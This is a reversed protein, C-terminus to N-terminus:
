VLGEKIPKNPIMKEHLLVFKKVLIDGSYIFNKFWINLQSIVKKLWKQIHFLYLLMVHIISKILKIRGIISLLTGKWSALKTRIEHVIHQFHAQKLRGKFIPCGLCHKEIPPWTEQILSVKIKVLLKDHHREM